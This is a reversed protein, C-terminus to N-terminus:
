EPADPKDAGRLMEAPNTETSASAPRLLTDPRADEAHSARLLVRAAEIEKCNARLMPLCEIAALRLKEERPTHPVIHSLQEVIPVATSDGVQELSKLAAIRLADMNPYISEVWVSSAVWTHIRGRASPTLLNAESAKIQPLLSILANYIAHRQKTSLNNELTAFLPVLAKVGGLRAIDEANFKPVGWLGSGFELLVQAFVGVVVLAPFLYPFVSHGAGFLSALLCGLAILAFYAARSGFKSRRKARKARRTISNLRQTVNQVVQTEAGTKTETETALATQATPLYATQPTQNEEPRFQNQMTTNHYCM